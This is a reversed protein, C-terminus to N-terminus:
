GLVADVQNGLSVFTRTLFESTHSGFDEQMSCVAGLCGVHLPVQPLSQDAHRAVRYSDSVARRSDGCPSPGGRLFARSISWSCDVLAVTTFSSDAFDTEFDADVLDACRCTDGAFERPPCLFAVPGSIPSRAEAWSCPSCFDDCAVRLNLLSTGGSGGAVPDAPTQFQILVMFGMLVPAGVSSGLDLKTVRVGRNFAGESFGDQGPPCGPVGHLLMQSPILVASFPGQKAKTTSVTPLSRGRHRPFVLRRCPSDAGDLRTRVGCATHCVRLSAAASM